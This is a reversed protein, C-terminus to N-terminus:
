PMTSAIVFRVTRTNVTNHNMPLTSIATPTGQDSVTGACDGPIGM